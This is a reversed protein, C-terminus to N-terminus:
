TISFPKGLVYIAVGASPVSSTPTASTLLAGEVSCPLGAVTVEASEQM